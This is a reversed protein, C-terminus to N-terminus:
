NFAAMLAFRIILIVVIMTIGIGISMNALRRTELSLQGATVMDGRNIAHRTENSKVIACIGVPWFCFLCAFWSLGCYDPPAIQPALIVSPGGAVVTVSQHQTTMPPPQYGSQYGPQYGPQAPYAPQGPYAQYGQQYPNPVPAGPYGPQPPYATKGQPAGGVPAETVPPPPQQWGYGQGPPPYQPQSAQDGPGPYPPPAYPPPKADTFQPNEAM